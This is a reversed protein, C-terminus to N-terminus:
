RAAGCDPCLADHIAWCATVGAGSLQAMEFVAQAEANIGISTAASPRVPAGAERTGASELDRRFLVDLSARGSLAVYFDVM